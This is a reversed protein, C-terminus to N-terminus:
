SPQHGIPLKMISKCTEIKEDLYTEANKGELFKNFEM